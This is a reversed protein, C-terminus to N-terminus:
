AAAAGTLWEGIRGGVHVPARDPDGRGLGIIGGSWAQVTFETAPRDRWPGDLGFPTIATVTLHPYTIRIQEPHLSPHEAVASGRSWVVAHATDLLAHVADLDAPVDPDTIVSRKGGALFAFLAGDSGSEITAGSASWARLPDGGPPEVKVVEAGADVLMKACYAGAIGTSLEVVVYGSLPASEAGASDSRGM